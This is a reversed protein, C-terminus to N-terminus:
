SLSIGNDKAITRVKEVTMENDEAIDALVDASIPLQRRIYRRLTNLVTKLRGKEIGQREIGASLNCMEAM